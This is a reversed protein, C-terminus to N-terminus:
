EHLQTDHPCQAGPTRVGARAPSALEDPHNLAELRTAPAHRIDYAPHEKLLAAMRSTQCFPQTADGAISLEAGPPLHVSNEDPNSRGEGQVFGM